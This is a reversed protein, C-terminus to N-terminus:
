NSACDSTDLDERRNASVAEVEPKVVELGMAQEEESAEMIGM